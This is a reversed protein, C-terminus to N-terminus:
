LHGPNNAFRSTIGILLHSLSLCALVCAFANFPSDLWFYCPNFTIYISLDEKRMSGSINRKKFKLPVQAKFLLFGTEAALALIHAKDLEIPHGSCIVSLPLGVLQSRFYAERHLYFKNTAPCWNESDTL